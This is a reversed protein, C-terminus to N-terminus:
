LRGEHFAYEISISGGRYLLHGDVLPSSGSLMRSFLRFDTLGLRIKLDSWPRGITAHDASKQDPMVSCSDSM